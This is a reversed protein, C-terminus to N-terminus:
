RRSQLAAIMGLGMGMSMVYDGEGLHLIAAAAVAADDTERSRLGAAPSTTTTQLAVQHPLGYHHIGPLFANPWDQMKTRPHEM